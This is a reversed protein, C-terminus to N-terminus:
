LITYATLIKVRHVGYIEWQSSKHGYFLGVNYHYQM